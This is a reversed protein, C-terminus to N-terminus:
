RTLLPLLIDDVVHDIYQADLPQGRAFGHMFLLAPVIEEVVNLNPKATMEGRCRARQCIAESSLRKASYIARMEDALEPDHRMAMVLGALLPGDEGTMTSSMDTLLAVLDGRLNGTNPADKTSGKCRRLAQVVLQAKSSWHRYLTAKSAKARAAVADLRLGEYGVEALLEYAAQLIEQERAADLRPGRHARGDPPEATLVPERDM